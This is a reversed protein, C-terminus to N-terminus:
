VAAMAIIGVTAANLGSLLAYVARPLAADINSVGISLGFMGLAGPLSRLLLTVIWDSRALM